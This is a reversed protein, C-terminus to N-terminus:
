RDKVCRFGLHNTTSRVAHGQRAAPRYRHCYSPACIHSGGKMVKRDTEVVMHTPDPRPGCCAHTSSQDPGGAHDPTWDSVTWEWVNGAVDHLGYGNPAFTGVPSTGAGNFQHLRQYPFEGQWTNAMVKGRRLFEDGWPYTAQELGGRAAHEWEAETPLRKDAWAAYARADEWGVHVVPHRDLGHLTSQPGDPHRWDAGPQWRWWRRWDDLPVRGQTPTFVQSGPVLEEPSADPFDEAPPEQEAVTVYGTAKVFRRFEANTVPHEDVWLADVEVQTVPQEEPYFDTSGMSFRGSPVAVMGRPPAM